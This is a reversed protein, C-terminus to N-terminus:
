ASRKILATWACSLWVGVVGFLLWTLGASLPGTILFGLLLAGLWLVILTLLALASLGIARLPAFRFMRVGAWPRGAAVAPLVIFAITSTLLILPVSLVGSAGIVLVALSAALWLGWRPRLAGDRAAQACVLVTSIVLALASALALLVFAVSTGPIVFPLVTAAQVFANLIVVPVFVRWGRAMLRATM